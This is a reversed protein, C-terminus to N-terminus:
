KLAIIKANPYLMIAMYWLIPMIYGNKNIIKEGYKVLHNNLKSQNLDYGTPILNNIDDGVLIVYKSKKKTKSKSKYKVLYVLTKPHIYVSKIKKDYIDNNNFYYDSHIIQNLKKKCKMFIADPAYIMANRLIM